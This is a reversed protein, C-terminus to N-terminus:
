GKMTWSSRAAPNARSSVTSALSPLSRASSAGPVRSLSSIASYEVINLLPRSVLDFYNAEGVREAIRGVVLGQRESARRRDAGRENAVPKISLRDRNGATALAIQEHQGGILGGLGAIPTDLDRDPLM